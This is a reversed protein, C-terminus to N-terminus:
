VGDGFGSGDGSGDSPAKCAFSKLSLRPFYSDDEEAGESLSINNNNLSSDYILDSIDSLADVDDVKDGVEVEDGVVEDALEDPLFDAVSGTLIQVDDGGALLVM